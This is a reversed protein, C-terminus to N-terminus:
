SELPKISRLLVNWETDGSPTAEDWRVMVQKHSRGANRRYTIDGIVTGTGKTSPCIIRTGKRVESSQAM